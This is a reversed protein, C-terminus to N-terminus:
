HRSLKVDAAFDDDDSIAVVETSQQAKTMAVASASSRKHKRRPVSKATSKRQVDTSAASTGGQPAFQQQEPLTELPFQKGAILM